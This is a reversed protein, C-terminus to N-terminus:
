WCAMCPLHETRLRWIVVQVKNNNNLKYLATTLVRQSNYIQWEMTNWTLPWTSKRRATAMPGPASSRCLGCFGAMNESDLWFILYTHRSNKEATVRLYLCWPHWPSEDSSAINCETGELFWATSHIRDPWCLFWRIQDCWGLLSPSVKM